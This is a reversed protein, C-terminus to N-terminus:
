LKGLLLKTLAIAEEKLQASPAGAAMVQVSVPTSGKMAGVTATEMPGTKGTMVFAKDGVGSVDQAKTEYLGEFAERSNDYSSSYPYIQVVAGKGTAGMWTCVDAGGSTSKQGTGEIGAAAKLEDATLMSCVDRSTAAAPTPAPTAAPASTTASSDTITSVSEEKQACAFTIFVLSVAFLTRVFSASKLM